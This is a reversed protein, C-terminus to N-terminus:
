NGTDIQVKGVCSHSAKEAGNDIVKFGTGSNYRTGDQYYLITIYNGRFKIGDICFYEWKNNPILPNLELVNDNQTRIGM